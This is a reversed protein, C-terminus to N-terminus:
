SYSGLYRALESLTSINTATLVNRHANVVYDRVEIPQENAHSPCGIPYKSKDVASSGKRSM